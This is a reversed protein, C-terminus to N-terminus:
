VGDLVTSCVTKWDAGAVDHPAYQWVSRGCDRSQRVIERGRLAPQLLSNGLITKIDDLMAAQGKSRATLRNIVMVHRVLPNHPRVLQLMNQLAALGAVSFADSELPSVVVDADLMPVIQRACAAPPTDLVVVDYLTPIRNLADRVNDWDQTDAAALNETACLVDVGRWFQSSLPQPECDEDFLCESTGAYVVSEKPLLALTASGQADLDVLLVRHGQEAACAAINLALTTKGVGGKQNAVVIRRM